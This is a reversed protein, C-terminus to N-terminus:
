DENKPLHLTEKEPMSAVKSALMCLRAAFLITLIWFATEFLISIMANGQFIFGPLAVDELFLYNVLTETFAPILWLLGWALFAIRNKRSYGATHAWAFPVMICVFSIQLKGVMRFAHMLYYGQEDLPAGALLSSYCKFLKSWPTDIGTLIVGLPLFLICAYGCFRLFPTGRGALPRNICWPALVLLLVSAVYQFTCVTEAFPFPYAGAILSVGYGTMGLTCIFAALCLIGAIVSIFLKVLPHIFYDNQEM